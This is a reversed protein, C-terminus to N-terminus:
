KIISKIEDLSQVIYTPHLPKLEDLDYFKTHEPPYCLISDIGVNQAAGLDKDSDGIIITQGKIAGLAL